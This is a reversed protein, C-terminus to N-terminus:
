SFQFFLSLLIILLKFFFILFHFTQSFFLFLYDLTIGVKQFFLIFNHFNEKLILIFIVWDSARM